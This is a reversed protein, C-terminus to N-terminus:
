EKEMDNNETIARFRRLIEAGYPTDAAESLLRDPDQGQDLLEQRAKEIYARAAVGGFEPHFQLGWIRDDLVFAQNLDRASSALRRAGAPLRVVSQHHSVNLRLTEPLGGLLPDDTAGELRVDVTGEEQGNPNDAVEGGLARALLQHGYCIGLMPVGQAAASKLWGALRESWEHGETVMDHSGTIVVGAVEAPDPLPAGNQVDVVLADDPSLGMGGIIWDEFDGQRAALEPMTSGTKIILTKRM